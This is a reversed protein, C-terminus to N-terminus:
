VGAAAKQESTRAHRCSASPFPPQPQACPPTAGSPEAMGGAAIKRLLPLKGLPGTPFRKHVLGDHVYMYAIGFLTIGLGAGFCLGGFLGLCPGASAKQILM